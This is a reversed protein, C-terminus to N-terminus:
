DRERMELREGRGGGGRERERDREGGGERERECGSVHHDIYSDCGFCWVSIDALSIVM